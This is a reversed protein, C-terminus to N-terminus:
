RRFDDRHSNYGKDHDDSSSGENTGRSHRFEGSDSDDRRENNKQSYRYDARESYEGREYRHNNDRNGHDSAIAAVSSMMFVTAILMKNLTINKM